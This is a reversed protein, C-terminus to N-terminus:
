VLRDDTSDISFKENCVPCTSSTLLWILGGKPKSSSIALWVWHTKCVPCRIKVCAFILSTIGLVMGGVVLWFFPKNEMAVFIGVFMLTCGIVLGWFALAVTRWQGTNQLLSKEQM